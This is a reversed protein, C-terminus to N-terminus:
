TTNLINPELSTQFASLMNNYLLTNEQL